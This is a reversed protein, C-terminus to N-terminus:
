DELDIDFTDLFWEQFEQAEDGYGARLCAVYFAAAEVYVAAKRPERVDPDFDTGVYHTAGPKM